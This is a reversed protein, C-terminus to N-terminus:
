RPEDGRYPRFHPLLIFASELRHNNRFPCAISTCISINILKCTIRQVTVRFVVICICKSDGVTWLYAASCHSFPVLPCVKINMIWDLPELLFTTSITIYHFFHFTKHKKDTWLFLCKWMLTIKGKKEKVRCMSLTVMSRAPLARSDHRAQRFPVVRQGAWLCSPPFSFPQPRRSPSCRM